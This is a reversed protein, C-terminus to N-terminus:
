KMISQLILDNKNDHQDLEICKKEISKTICDTIKKTCITESEKFRERKIVVEQSLM